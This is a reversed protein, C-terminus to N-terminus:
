TFLITGEGTSDTGEYSVAKVFDPFFPPNEHCGARNLRKLEELLVAFFPYAGKLVCVCHLTTDGYFSRIVEALRKM